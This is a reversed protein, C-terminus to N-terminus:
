SGGRLARAAPLEAVSARLAVILSASEGSEPGYRLSAYTEGIRQLLAGCQPWRRAARETYELPGEDPRRRLGARALRRCARSWLAVAPDARMTRMRAFGLVAAGWALLALVAFGVIEWPRAIDLGLDRLLDRQREVNFGVVGRQWQYNIADWHLRLSKLWTMDLRALYPVPEGRPLAAGLGREVRSPAVAATPDFRQWVGDLLAEGWAHADSQRVILYGGDPNIEGGQYGTVVRAPIGAARLLVVFAGAYHECFGRRSDFLFEDVPDSGLLTPTLTYVFAENHFRELVAAVFARDSEVRARLERAYAITRPNNRPLQLNEGRESDGVAPFSDGLASRQEYRVAQTLPASALLLQDYTLVAIEARSSSPAGIAEGPRRPLSTPHELAFLWLKGHPELTVTYDISRGASRALEGRRMRPLLTWEQGDFRSLVPGRWYRQAPLPPPGVFDVRFAVEDSISLAGISGPAMRESLGTRAAADAPMGWLPGALRPFLIFLLAALPIGQVIMRATTALPTKWEFGAPAERLAALAAGLVLVAPLTLLAAGITQAYFFPTLLLFVALCILLGGDRASRTEAYKIGLLLYLFVVCPDRALFYGFQSRIGLAAAIALLPLLWRRLWRPAMRETPLALRAVVLGAGAAAVWLPVRTWLPFQACIVLAALWALQTRSLPTAPAAAFIV